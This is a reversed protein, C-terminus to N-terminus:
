LEALGFVVVGSPVALVKIARATAINQANPDKHSIDHTALAQVSTSVAMSHQHQQLCLLFATVQLWFDFSPLSFAGALPPGLRGEISSAREKSSVDWEKDM